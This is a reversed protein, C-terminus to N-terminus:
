KVFTITLDGKLLNLGVGGKRISLIGMNTGIAGGGFVGRRCQCIDKKERGGRAPIGAGFTAHKPPRDGAM